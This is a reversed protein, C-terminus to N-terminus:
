LLVLVVLPAESIKRHISVIHAAVAFGRHSILIDFIFISVLFVRRAEHASDYFAFQVWIGEPLGFMERDTRTAYWVHEIAGYIELLQRAEREPIDGGVIRSM